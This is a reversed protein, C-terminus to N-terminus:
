NAPKVMCKYGSSEINKRVSDIDQGDRYDVITGGAEAFSSNLAEVDLTSLDYNQREIVQGEMNVCSINVGNMGVVKQRLRECDNNISDLTSSDATPDGKTTKELEVKYLKYHTFYYVNYYDVDLTATNSKLSCRLEGSEIDSDNQEVDNNRYADVLKQIDPLFLVFSLILLFFLFMAFTRVRSYPRYEVEPKKEEEVKQQNNIVEEHNKNLSAISHNVTRPPPASLSSPDVPQSNNSDEEVKNSTNDTTVSPALPDIIPLADESKEKVPEVNSDISNASVVTTIGQSENNEHNASTM